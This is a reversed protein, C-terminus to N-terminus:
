LLAGCGQATKHLCSPASGFQIRHGGRDSRVVLASFSIAFLALILTMIAFRRTIVSM